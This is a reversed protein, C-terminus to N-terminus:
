ELVKSSTKADTMAFVNFLLGQGLLIAAAIVWGSMSMLYSVLERRAILVSGWM